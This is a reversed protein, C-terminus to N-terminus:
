EFCTVTRHWQSPCHTIKCFLKSNSRNKWIFKCLKCNLEIINNNKTHIYEQVMQSCYFVTFIKFWRTRSQIAYIQNLDHECFVWCKLNKDVDKSHLHWRVCKCVDFIWPFTRTKEKIIEKAQKFRWEFVGDTEIRWKFITNFWSNCKM